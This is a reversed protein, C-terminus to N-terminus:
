SIVPVIKSKEMNLNRLSAIAITSFTCIFKAKTATEPIMKLENITNPRIGAANTGLGVIVKLALITTGQRNDAIIIM